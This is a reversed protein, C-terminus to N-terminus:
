NEASEALYKEQYELFAAKVDPYEEFFGSISKARQENIRSPDLPPLDSEGPRDEDFPLSSDLSTRLYKVGGKLLKEYEKRNDGFFDTVVEANAVVFDPSIKFGEGEFLVQEMKTDM